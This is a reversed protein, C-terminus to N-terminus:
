RKSAPDILDRTTDRYGDALNELETRKLRTFPEVRALSSWFGHDELRALIEGNLAILKANRDVCANLTRDREAVLQVKAARDTEVDKLTQATDRYRDVLEQTQARLKELAAADAAQKQQAQQLAATDTSSKQRRLAEREASAAKLQTKLDEIDHKLKENEAAAQDRQATAQQLQQMLRTQGNESGSRQVQAVGPLALVLLPAIALLRTKM